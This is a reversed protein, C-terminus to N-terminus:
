SIGTPGIIFHLSFSSNLNSSTFYTKPDVSCSVETTWDYFDVPCLTKNNGGNSSARQELYKSSFIMILSLVILLLTMFTTMMRRKMRDGWSYMLHEWIIVSPEPAEKVSLFKGKLLYPTRACYYSFFSVKKYFRYARDRDASKNFTIFAYVPTLERKSLEELKAEKAKLEKNVEKM